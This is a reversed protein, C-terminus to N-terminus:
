GKRWTKNAFEDFVRNLKEAANDQKMYVPAGSKFAPIAANELVEKMKSLEEVSKNQLYKDPVTTKDRIDIILRSKTDEEIIDTAQQLKKTLDVILVDKEAVVKKLENNEALVLAVNLDILDNKEKNEPKKEETSM